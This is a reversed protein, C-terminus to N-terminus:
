ASCCFLWLQPFFDVMGDYGGTFGGSIESFGDVVVWFRVLVM